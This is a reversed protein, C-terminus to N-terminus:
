KNQERNLERNLIIIMNTAYNSLVYFFRAFIFMSILKDIWDQVNDANTIFKKVLVVILSVVAAISFIFCLSSGMKYMVYITTRAEGTIANVAGSVIFIIIKHTLPISFVLGFIIYKAWDELLSGFTDFAYLPLSLSITYGTLLMLFTVVKDSLSIYSNMQTTIQSM